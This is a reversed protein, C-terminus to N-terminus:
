KAGDQFLHDHLRIFVIGLEAPDLERILREATAKPDRAPEPLRFSRAQGPTRILEGRSVLKNLWADVVSTSSVGLAEQIERVTPGNGHTDRYIRIFTKVKDAWNLYNTYPTRREKTKM